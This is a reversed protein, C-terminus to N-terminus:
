ADEHIGHHEGGKLKGKRRAEELPLMKTLVAEFSVPYFDWSDVGVDFSLGWPQDNLFGHEHGFLHWSGHHSKNWVRLPYHCLVITQNGEYGGEKRPVKIDVLKGTDEFLHENMKRQKKHDHNGWVMHHHGKLRSIFPTWDTDFCYDGLHHVTDKEGVVLNHRRIIEENMEKVDKFPRHSLEVIRSHNLHEDATFWTQAM